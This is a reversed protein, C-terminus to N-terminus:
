DPHRLRGQKVFDGQRILSLDDVKTSALWAFHAILVATIATVLTLVITIHSTIQTRQM